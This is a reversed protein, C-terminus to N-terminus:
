PKDALQAIIAQVIEEPSQKIDFTLANKPAELVYFQSQVMDAKMYHGERKGVRAMITDLDGALHVLTVDSANIGLKTRYKEKLASCTFVSSQGADRCEDMKAKISALWPERDTDSLPLGSGMKVKNAPTHFDDAEFYKWGLSTALKRGVTTKGCGAVGM